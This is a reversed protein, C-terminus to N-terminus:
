GHRPFKTIYWNFFAPLGVEITTTPKFGVEKNFNDIDAYTVPADGSHMPLFNKEIEVMLKLDAESLSDELSTATRTM